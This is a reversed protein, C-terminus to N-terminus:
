GFTSFQSNFLEAYFGNKNLLEKHTGSEIINGDKMVLIKDADVITSLRHAIVFSTRGQMMESFTRQVRKETRTDISSTAEDLILMPPKCLLIRAICLLQKQGQSINGGDESIMTDYGHKQRMIFNHIHAKKAAEEIEEQTADEKGYAINERITGAFLWSEQLVMGYCSRLSSRTVDQINQGSVSIIGSQPDYFRMLLNILTTKGCGTPGVIAIRQGQKVDICFDEILPKEPVYSFYVHEAKMSGDCKKLIQKNEESSEEEEDLVDLVRRLSAFATQLETIVGTIENFPKCYQNAYQLFSSLAGVSFLAPNQVVTLAGFVAVATYVISNVFRASPNTLSSYFMAGVGYKKLDANIVDFRKEAQTEYAFAKVIKQNSLMEEALGSLEGRSKSQLSFLNHSLKAILWTVVISLPTLIVVILAIKVNILFMFVITGLVTVIGSFLHTFGQILGDSILDTDTVLRAMLDGHSAGDLYRLPVRNLKRFTAIRLDRITNFALRNSCVSGLWQFILVVVICAVLLIIMKIIGAFDVEGVGIMLDIAKGIVVPVALTAATQIVTFLACLVLYLCHPKAYVFLRRLAELSGRKKM